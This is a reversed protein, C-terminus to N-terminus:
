TSFAWGGNRGLGAWVVRRGAGAAELFREEGGVCGAMVVGGQATCYPAVAVDQGQV